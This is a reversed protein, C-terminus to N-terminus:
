GVARARLRLAIVYAVCVRLCRQARLGRHQSFTRQASRLCLSARSHPRGSQLAPLHSRQHPGWASHGSPNWSLPLRVEAAGKTTGSNMQNGVALITQLLAKFAASDRLAAAAADMMGLLSGVQSAIGDFNRMFVVCGLREALLPVDM